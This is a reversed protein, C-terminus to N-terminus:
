KVEIRRLLATEANPLTLMLIGDELRAGITDTKIGNGLNFNRSFTIEGMREKRRSEFGDSMKHNRKAKVSLIQNEVTIELDETKIGPLDMVIRFETDGEMIDARPTAREATEMSHRSECFNGNMAAEIMRSMPHTPTTM